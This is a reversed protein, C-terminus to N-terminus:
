DELILVAALHVSKQSNQYLLGKDFDVAFVLLKPRVAKTKKERERERKCIRSFLWKAEGNGGALILVAALHLNGRIKIFYVKIL